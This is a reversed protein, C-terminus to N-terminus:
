FVSITFVPNREGSIKMFGLIRASEKMKQRAYISILRKLISKLYFNAM